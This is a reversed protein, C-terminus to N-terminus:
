LLPGAWNAFVDDFEADFQESFGSYDLDRGNLDSDELTHVEGGNIISLGNLRLDSVLEESLGELVTLDLENQDLASLKLNLHNLALNVQPLVNESLESLSSSISFVVPELAAVPTLVTMMQKGADAVTAELQETVPLNAMLPANVGVLIEFAGTAASAHATQLILADLVSPLKRVGPDLTANLVDGAHVTDDLHLGDDTLTAEFGSGVFSLTGGVGVEIHSEFPAYSETFGAVHGIEHLLVTLLDYHGAAASGSDATYAVGGELNSGGFATTSIDSYWGLGAADDDLTIMGAVPRGQADVATIQGEGLQTGGLDTIVLKIDFPQDMGLAAQWIGLAEDMVDDISSNGTIDTTKGYWRQLFNEPYIVDKDGGKHVGYNSVFFSLDKYNVTGSKDADLAWVYPSNTDLVNQGYISALITLDRYNIADDDNVDYAIAWLDTDPADGIILNTAADDALRININTLSLGLAHPGIFKDEFDISVDDQELSEFKVRALLAKKYNGTREITTTGSLSKVIGTSDDIVAFGDDAFARGFEIETATFFNTNYNLDVMADMIAKADATEVYIEVWFTSWEDIWSDSKPLTNIHGTSDLETQTRVVVLDVSTGETLAPSSTTVAQTGHLPNTATVSITLDYSGVDGADVGSARGVTTSADYSAMATYASNMASVGIYYDGAVTATYSVFSDTDGLVGILIEGAAVNLDNDSFAVQAGSSNFIRIVSDLGTDFMDADVDVTVVDGVNLQVKFMDVDVLPDPLTSNDGIVGQYTQTGPTAHALGTDEAGLGIVDGFQDAQNVNFRATASGVLNLVVDYGETTTFQLRRSIPILLEYVGASVLTLKAKSWDPLGAPVGTVPDIYTMSEGTTTETNSDFVQNAESPISVISDLQGNELLWNETIDFLGSGDIAQESSLVQAIADRIALSLQAQRIGAFPITVDFLQDGVLGFDALDFDNYTGSADREPRALGSPNVDLYSDLIRITTPNNIDDFLVDLRGSVSTNNLGASQPNLNLVTGGGLDITGSMTLNSLDTQILFESPAVQKVSTDTISIQSFDINNRRIIGDAGSILDATGINFNVNAAEAYASFEAYGVRAYGNTAMGPLVTLTNIDNIVGSGVSSIGGLFGFASDDVTFNASNLSTGATDWLLDLFLSTVNATETTQGALVQALQDSIWIEVVYTSGTVVQTVGAPLKSVDDVEPSVAINGGSLKTPTGPGGTNVVIQVALVGSYLKDIMSSTFGESGASWTGSFIDNLMDISPNDDSLSADYIKFVTANGNSTDVIRIEKLDDSTTGTATGYLDVDEPSNVVFDSLYISYNLDQLGNTLQFKAGGKAGGALATLDTEARFSTFDRNASATNRAILQIDLTSQPAPTLIFTNDLSPSVTDSSTGTVTIEVPLRVQTSSYDNYTIHLENGSITIMNTWFDAPLPDGNVLKASVTYSITDGSDADSFYDDLDIIEETLGDRAIGPLQTMMLVENSGTVSVTVTATSTSGNQDRIQYGFSDDIFDTPLTLGGFMGNPNYTVTGNGELTVIAGLATTISVGQSGTLNDLYSVLLVDSLDPDSDAGLGNDARVDFNLTNNKSVTVIDDVANVPDNAGDITITVTAIDTGGNGDDVTYTFTETTSEGVALYDYSGNPNFTLVGASTLTLLGGAGISIANGVDGANGNVASISLMDLEVDSDATTPNADLVNVGNLVTDEDTLFADDVAVPADNRGDITIMVTQMVSGGKSDIVDYSYELVVSEGVALYNYASPDITLSNGNLTIGADNGGNTLTLNDISLMDSLDVDSANTLLDLSFSAQDEDTTSSVSASVTPADNKGDITITVTQMVSGGNDDVVNYSYELVVSEGLALYNYASPDIGLSNGNDTIGSADTANTQVLNSVSLMDSLDVDSANTLLDLSFSAQDEDTTSSVAASVTPADNVGTITIIVTQDVSGGNGDIVKYSYTIVESEGEALDNYASPNVTLSNVGLTIGRADGSELVLSDVNLIDTADPDSAGLLLTQSFTGIFDETVTETVPVNVTPADNRGNITITVTQAVVGGEGDIVDYSYELVVSEGVALYNYASPDITLSNGNDTIGSADTANTQVLNSVSLMDTLDDDSANTLLDLSFSAQDEDTTSSVAASVTPDDNRGDITITVTQAVVGGEGDIVDYSYELVVSEGVALYNYASPDIGLTNGNDTIGSADAANTQMLNSVSLMDSLDVDSANTLLDLSFSAQDEDTTSSVAASVTPADNKGDITITVTQAVVGGKSDVVDYSYELVVSEGLALYNYASPDIGLSNGNDTIGAANGGNTQTLNSVSLMDTLDVDSANTLLDLSFSMQDEDTTSSVAASVTPADNVGTITITATQDVNGGKGDSVKYTYVIVASEGDALYNYASPNIDLSNGNVTIGANNGSFKVLDSVSLMDTTDVDSANTLLDLSYSGNDETAMSTLTAMSVTPADNVGNITITATQMVSGSHGDIVNYSYEIVATEGAALSDYFSPDIQLTNGIVTIGGDDGSTKTLGSINLTDTADVDSANSLLDLIYTGDDETPTSVVAMSVTPADNVGNITITATQAVVGGKGDIVDYSFTVQFAEGVALHTFDNPDIELSNGNLTLNGADIIGTTSVLTLNDISLMDNLDVDNANTLLNLSFSMADETVTSTVAASVTPADNVGTVTVQVTGTAFGGREDQLTYTFTDVVIQGASLYDFAGTPDYSITGDMNLSLAAGGSSTMSPLGSVILNSNEGDPDTDNDLVDISTIETEENTAAMDINAIPMQNASITLTVTATSFGGKSDSVQYKFSDTATVTGTLGNFQGNPNYTFTGDANLKVLAGSDLSVFEGLNGLSTDDDPDLVQTVTLTDSTDPDSDAGSGNNGLVNGDISNEKNVDFADPQAVPADNLGNVTITVAQMGVGGLGDVVEYSYTIVASEGVALYNYASPNIDLSTGNANLMVGGANGGTLTLNAIGLVAGADIDSANTLLDLSFSAQDEDTTSSVAASVTPDDNRGDITITVTQAVVGGEGDIVDYSYELVVSEGVALYNYASPDIGLSNGNDTIGSADAVNTQVLDMVSLMDSLDVDSANALLDLSFSAQDEDTTSTVAASVTPADNRGDITITVTQAVVGGEGDIVDYSYELVVSEGVALYNYASPDIGLSNGNDTIGADNAGNTRTLNEISLMDSLDVDSANTLLDLSFSAQDEDTTSSVAASVTPADNVGTITIIVTQDVSGGNGDIVKYSYTIVESEGEALDNYASPNVTLSNVGLTIGRADGSELVLSDVNLIDTADPDSAGLLLTQSFTGIFDETVTETVPVNVTPADNRGNITITVTQAVVGGEGDIVDYSYELVVSEGVALYNYASPDITLSNGNDTIGSADTANTQVLNSVSLMDTLDDDSANTLLDLSFSAQDEDTTSSVAASVTPDDNRGDITITVTQAVVGGEGDIVDYSYELVVSEGVALYNYASPDIGLTNGNDTIGSADAANTQMLNSVSLMDSLDVDSANTLLDLSFSAQDEDTTSSVAASVTPADNRGDITITARHTVVGGKGDIVNYNYVIVASEGVTLYNYASPDIDLSNGNQIIGSGDGMDLMLSAVSLMDTLDPDSANTLLDLSFSAQDEDTTSSVDASVTPADNRGNITIMVTQAVVGGKSDVVDYSYELVVSEGVALYNYASPDIGLSNGNDTIGSADTANTQVLNSVSLMDTLDDDSANTLLDLSFSAQDEDTTSSVAASVTPADNRGGITISVTQVVVGGKGDIVHYSYTIVESEGMALYNYASPNIGLTTGNDTIGSADGANTQVLNMVNLMDGLDVDSANTLLDLSFSAQDEDTTSSVAASVTPADNRGDIRITVTQMVSGGNGDVVDYSYELLVFEGMALYNYASPDIGLSNGNDTIGSADGANTQVLNMVNLMDSLDVDSANTLLDLSFSAQDEDITSSVAASVTPADNVGNITITVTATDTGGNGDDITYTFTETASEGVALSEYQGNPNFKFTGGAGVTLLGGAGISITNEVNGAIGNVATITLVDMEVDSDATTPNAALVDGNILITDEDTMVADDVAVPADNLANVMVTFPNSLVFNGAQDMAKIVIVTPGTANLVSNLILDGTSFDATVIANTISDFQFSLPTGGNQDFFAALSGLNLMGFDENPSQDGIPTATLTPDTIDLEFSVDFDGRASVNGHEDATMFHLTHVGGELSMGSNLNDQLWTRTLTFSGGSAGGSIQGFIDVFSGGDLAVKFQTILSEDSVSGIITLSNTVGDSTSIGSDIQLGAVVAPADQDGILELQIPPLGKNGTVMQLDHNDIVGDKNGDLEASYYNSNPNLGLSQILQATYSNYGFNSQYFAATAQVLESQSVTGSGDMDGPLFVDIIFGGTTSAQGNVLIKYEGPALTALVLSNPGQHDNEALNLPIVANTNANLIQIAAPNFSSSAAARVEFGLTPSSGTGINLLLETSDNPQNVSSELSALINSALLTRDELREIHSAYGIPRSLRFPSRRNVKRTSKRGFLRKLSKM